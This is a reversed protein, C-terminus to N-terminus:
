PLNSDEYIWNASMKEYGSKTVSATITRRSSASRGSFSWDQNMPIFRDANKNIKSQLNIEATIPYILKYKVDQNNTIRSNSLVVLLWCGVIL